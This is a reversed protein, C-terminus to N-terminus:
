CWQLRFLLAMPYKLIDNLIGTVEGDSYTSIDAKDLNTRIDNLKEVKDVQIGLHDVGLTKVRTSIAFNVKPDELIWQAYDEKVKTPESKFLNKYFNISENLNKVGLHLHLRQM